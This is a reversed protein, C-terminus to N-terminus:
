GFLIVMEREILVEESRWWIWRWTWWWVAAGVDCCVRAEEKRGGKGWVLFVRASERERGERETCGHTANAGLGDLFGRALHDLTVVRFHGEIEVGVLLDQFFHGYDWGLAEAVLDSTEGGVQHLADLLTWDPADRELEL